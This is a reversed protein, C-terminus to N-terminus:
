LMYYLTHKSILIFKSYNHFCHISSIFPPHSVSSIAFSANNLLQFCLFLVLSPNHHLHLSLPWLILFFYAFIITFIFLVNCYHSFVYDFNSLTIFLSFMPVFNRILFGRGRPMWTASDEEISLMRLQRSVGKTSKMSEIQFLSPPAIRWLDIKFFTGTWWIM